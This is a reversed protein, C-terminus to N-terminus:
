YIGWTSKAKDKVASANKAGGVNLAFIDLVKRVVGLVVNDKPSPTAATIVGALAILTSLIEVWDPIKDATEAVISQEQVPEAVQKVEVVKVPQSSQAADAAIVPESSGISFVAFLACVLYLAAFSSGLTKVLRM